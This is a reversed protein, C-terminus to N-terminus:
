VQVIDYHIPYILQILEKCEKKLAPEFGQVEWEEYGEGFDFKVKKPIRVIPQKTYIGKEKNWADSYYFYKSQNLFANLVKVNSSLKELSGMLELPTESDLGPVAVLTLICYLAADEAEKYTSYEREVIWFMEEPNHGYGYCDKIKFIGSPKVEEIICWTIGVIDHVKQYQEKSMAPLQFNIEYSSSNPMRMSSDFELRLFEELKELIVKQDDMNSIFQYIHKDTYSSLNYRSLMEEAANKDDFIEIIHDQGEFWLRRNDYVYNRRKLHYKTNM